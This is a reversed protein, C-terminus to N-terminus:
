EFITDNQVMDLLKKDIKQLIKRQVKAPSVPINFRQAFREGNAYMGYLCSIEPIQRLFEQKQERSQFILCVWFNVENIDQGQVRSIERAAIFKALKENDEGIDRHREEVTAGRGDFGWSNMDIQLTELENLESMLLESNWQALEGTKNDILRFAKVQEPTLDNAVIVPVQQLGLAQAAKFRTHGTVIVGEADIVIPVKFGFEKISRAVVDIAAENYRPNQAYPKLTAVDRMEVQVDAM